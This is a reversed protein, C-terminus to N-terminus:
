LSVAEVAYEKIKAQKRPMDPPVQGLRMFDVDVLSIVKM